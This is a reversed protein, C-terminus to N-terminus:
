PMEKGMNKEEIKGSKSDVYDEKLLEQGLKRDGWWPGGWDKEGYEGVLM